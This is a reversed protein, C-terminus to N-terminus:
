GQEAAMAEATDDILERLTVSRLRERMAQDAAILQKDLVTHVNRGVPCGPNPNEHFHFLVANEEVAEFVDLLTITEPERALSAGGEGAKVTVIGAAKLKGLTNRIVVPNVGVSGALFNSTTKHEGGFVAIALLIHVAVPLRTSYQM